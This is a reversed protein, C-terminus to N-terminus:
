GASEMLPHELVSQIEKERNRYKQIRTNWYKQIQLDIRLSGLPPPIGQPVFTCSICIQRAGFLGFLRNVRNEQM